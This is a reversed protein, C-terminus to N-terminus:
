GADWRARYDSEYAYRFAIPEDYVAIDYGRERIGRQVGEELLLGDPDHASTLKAAQPPFQSLIADRWNDPM